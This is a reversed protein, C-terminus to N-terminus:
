NEIQNAFYVNMSDEMASFIQASHQFTVTRSRTSTISNILIYRQLLLRINTGYKPKHPVLEYVDSPSFGPYKRLHSGHLSLIM